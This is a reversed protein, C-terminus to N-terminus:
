VSRGAMEQQFMRKEQEPTLQNNNTSACSVLFLLTFIIAFTKFNM